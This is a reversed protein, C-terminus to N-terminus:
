TLYYQMEDFFRKNCNKPTQGCISEDVQVTLLDFTSTWLALMGSLM